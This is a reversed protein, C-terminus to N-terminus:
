KQYPAAPRFFNSSLELLRANNLSVVDNATRFFRVTKSRLLLGKAHVQSILHNLSQSFDVLYPCDEQGEYQVVFGRVYWVILHLTIVCAYM